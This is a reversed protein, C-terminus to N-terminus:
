GNHVTAERWDDPMSDFVRRWDRGYRVGMEYARDRTADTASELRSDWTDTDDDQGWMEALLRRLANRDSVGIRESMEDGETTSTM